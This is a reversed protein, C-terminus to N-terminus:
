TKMAAEPQEEMEAVGPEQKSGVGEEEEESRDDRKNRVSM